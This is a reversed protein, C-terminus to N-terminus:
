APYVKRHRVAVVRAKQGVSKRGDRYSKQRVALRGGVHGREIGVRVKHAVNFVKFNWFELYIQEVRPERKGPAKHVGVAVVDGRERRLAKGDGGANQVGDGQPLCNSGSRRQAGNQKHFNM